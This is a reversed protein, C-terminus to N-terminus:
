AAGAPNLVDHSGAEFIMRGVRRSMRWVGDAFVYADRLHGGMEYSKGAAAGIGVHYARTYIRSTATDGDLQIRYNGVLHQTPGCHKLSDAIREIAEKRGVIHWDPGYDFEVDETFVDELQEFRRRDVSEAYVDLLDMIAIRDSWESREGVSTGGQKERLM